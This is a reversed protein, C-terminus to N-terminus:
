YYVVYYNCPWVYCCNPIPRAVRYLILNLQYVTICYKNVKQNLEHNDITYSYRFVLPTRPSCKGGEWTNEKGGLFNNINLKQLYNNIRYLVLVISFDAWFMSTSTGGGGGGGCVCCRVVLQKTNM